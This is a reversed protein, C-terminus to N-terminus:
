IVPSPSIAVQDAAATDRGKANEPNKHRFELPQSCSAARVPRRPAQQRQHRRPSRPRSRPPARNRSTGTRSAKLSRWSASSLLVYSFSPVLPKAVYQQRKRRWGCASALCMWTPSPRCNALSACCCTAAPSSPPPPPGAHALVRQYDPLQLDLLSQDLRQGRSWRFVPIPM